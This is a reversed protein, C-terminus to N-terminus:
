GPRSRSQEYAQQRDSLETWRELRSVAPAQGVFPTIRVRPGWAARDMDPMFSQAFGFGPLLAIALIAFNVARNM